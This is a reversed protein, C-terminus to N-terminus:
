VGMEIHNMHRSNHDDSDTAMSAFARVLKDHRLGPGRVVEEVDGGDRRVLLNSLLIKFKM